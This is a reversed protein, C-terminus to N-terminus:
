CSRQKYRIQNTEKTQKILKQGNPMYAHSQFVKFVFLLCVFCFCCFIACVCLYINSKLCHTLVLLRFFWFIHVFFFCLILYIHLVGVGALQFVVYFIFVLQKNIEKKDRLIFIALFAYYWIPICILKAGNIATDNLYHAGFNEFRRM